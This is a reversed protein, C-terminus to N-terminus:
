GARAITAPREATADGCDPEGCAALIWARAAERLALAAQWPEADPPALLPEGVEVALAGHHPLRQDDPLMARTGRLAVPVVAVGAEVASRFAGLQFPLLGPTRRFTGEPFVALVEGRALAATLAEADAVSRARDFREVFCAGLRELLPRLLRSGRLEGKAVFTLAVPLAAGLVAGDLYSAHNAVLVWPGSAPLHELGRVRLRVGCLALVARAAARVVTWARARDRPLALVVLWVGGGLLATVALAYGSWLRAALRRGQRLAEGRLARLALGALALRRAGAAGALRGRAYLDALAARRIKGSSTKLVAGPPVLVIDDAPQGTLEVALAAIREGLAARAVRESERTEAVVVLRETGGAPEPVGIVAVCGRRVGDLEAIAQELEYPHINRGARIIVDKDRGTVFVEGDLLFGRDGTVLWDGDFLTRNAEPNRYYGSTLSPGRVELSGEEREGLEGGAPGVVRVEFGPIPTGSSVLDLGDACGADVPEAYGAEALRSRACREIRPGRGLPTFAVGLTAEALGYVPALAEGRLGFPAFREAFARLTAASVPEAGNFAVRWRGLDVGALDAEDIRRLCLEYAFNPGGSLTGRYASLAQLWRAPRSLFDLPSMLVLPFGYYLSGLWAGILGMDHYLPLWSVFVDDAGANLAAGMARLSALVDAHSLVVGKPDGTSGSTYQLFAIDGPRPAMSVPEADGATLEEAAIVERVGSSLAALARGAAHVAEFTILVRVRANALIRAHRRLHEELQSPRAPPYIPVPFGGALIAGLFCELYALGTPLMLAVSEGPQLGREHLAGAVRRAGGALAAFTLEAVEEGAGLLRVHTRRPQHECHWDLVEVLTRARAPAALAEGLALERAEVPPAPGRDAGGSLLPRLLDRPTEAALAAGEPLAVAFREELRAALEVRALSDLGLDRELSSDLDVACRGRLHPHLEEVLERVVAGLQEAREGDAGM